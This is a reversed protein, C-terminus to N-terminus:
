KRKLGATWNLVVTIPPGPEELPLPRQGPTRIRSYSHFSNRTTPPGPHQHPKCEEGLGNASGTSWEREEPLFVHKTHFAM